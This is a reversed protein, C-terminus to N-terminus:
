DLNDVFDPMDLDFTDLDTGQYKRFQLWIYLQLDYDLKYNGVGIYQRDTQVNDVLLQVVVM